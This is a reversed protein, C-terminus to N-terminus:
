LFKIRPTLRDYLGLESVKIKYYSRLGEKDYTISFGSESVNPRALITPIYQVLKLEAEARLAPTLLKDETYFDSLEAESLQIGFGSYKGKIYELVTM